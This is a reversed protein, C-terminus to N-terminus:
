ISNFSTSCIWYTHQRYNAWKIASASASNTEYVTLSVVKFFM